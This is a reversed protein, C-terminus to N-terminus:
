YYEMYDDYDKETFKHHCYPCELIVFPIPHEAGEVWKFTLFHKQKHQEKLWARAEPDGCGVYGAPEVNRLDSCWECMNECM